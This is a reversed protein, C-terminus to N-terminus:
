QPTLVKWGDDNWTGSNYTRFYQTGPKPHIETVRVMTVTSSYRLVERLGVTVSTTLLGPPINNWLSEDTKYIIFFATKSYESDIDTLGITQFDRNFSSGDKADVANIKTLTSNLTTIKDNLAKGQRGDLVTNTTTTTLNNVITPKGTLNAYAQLTAASKGGVTDADGGNAPLSTPKNSLDNYSGSFAVTKLDAFFKMIKGLSTKLTEGSVLNTRSSAQTFTSKTNSIDGDNDVKKKIYTDYFHKLGDFDLFKYTM